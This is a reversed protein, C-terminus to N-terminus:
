RLASSRLQAGKALHHLRYPVLAFTGGTLQYFKWYSGAPDSRELAGGLSLWRRSPHSIGIFTRGSTPAKRVRALAIQRLLWGFSSSIAKLYSEQPPAGTSQNTLCSTIKPPIGMWFQISNAIAIM